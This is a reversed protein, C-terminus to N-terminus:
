DLVDTVQHYLVLLHLKAHLLYLAGVTFHASTIHECARQTPSQVYCNVSPEGHALGTSLAKQADDGQVKLCDQMAPEPTERKCALFQLVSLKVEKLDDLYYSLSAQTELRHQGAEKSTKRQSWMRCRQQYIIKFHFMVILTYEIKVECTSWIKM